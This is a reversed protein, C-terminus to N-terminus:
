LKIGALPDDSVKKKGAIKPMKPTTKEEVAAAATEVKAKPARREALAVKRAPRKAVPGPAGREAVAPAAAVTAAATELRAKDATLAKVQEELATVKVKVQQEARSAAEVAQSKAQELEVIARDKAGLASAFDQQLKWYGAAGAGGLLLITLFVPGAVSRPKPAPQEWQQPAVQHNYAASGYAQHAYGAPAGWGAQPQQHSPRPGPDVDFEDTRARQYPEAVRMQASRREAATRQEEWARREAERTRAETDRRIRDNAIRRLENLSSVVSDESMIAM